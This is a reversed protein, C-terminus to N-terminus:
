ADTEACAPVGAVSSGVSGIDGFGTRSEPHDLAGRSASDCCKRLSLRCPGLARYGTSPSDGAYATLTWHCLISQGRRECESLRHSVIKQDEDGICYLLPSERHAMASYDFISDFLRYRIEDNRQRHSNRKSRESARSLPRYPGGHRLSGSLGFWDFAGRQQWLQFQRHDSYLSHKSG